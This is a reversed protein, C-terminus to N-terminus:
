QKVKAELEVEFVILERVLKHAMVADGKEVSMPMLPRRPKNEYGFLRNLLMKMGAIGIKIAVGDANAILNQVKQAEVYSGTGPAAQCLEWLKVCTRPAFNALGTIAGSSGSAMSPLLFDIFGDIVLFPATEVKRPYQKQFSPENVSATIRTLKGVAGCTLKVGCINPASKAIDIIFDSDMDIGGSVGPFNYMMVPIPSAESIDLFYTRLAAMNEAILPGAYYGPPIAIAFDAGAAAADKALQISERTSAAGIGAVIPVTNLNIEDLAARGAVILSTRELASLHPAEGMTGSIVPFTGAASQIHKKFAQLDLDESGDQFFTPLPTYIGKPLIRTM